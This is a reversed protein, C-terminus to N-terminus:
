LNVVLPILLLATSLKIINDRLYQVSDVFSNKEIAM